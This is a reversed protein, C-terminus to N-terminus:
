ENEDGFTSLEPQIALLDQDTQDDEPATEVGGLLNDLSKEGEEDGASESGKEARKFKGTRNYLRSPAQWLDGPRTVRDGVMVITSTGERAMTGNWVVSEVEPEDRGVVM